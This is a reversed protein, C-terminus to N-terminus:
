NVPIIAGADYGEADAQNIIMLVETKRKGEEIYHMELTYVLRGSGDGHSANKVWLSLPFNIVKGAPLIYGKPFTMTDTKNYSLEMGGKKVKPVLKGARFDATGGSQLINKSEIQVLILEKKSRNKVSLTVTPIPSITANIKEANSDFYGKNRKKSWYFRYYTKGIFVKKYYSIDLIEIDTTEPYEDTAKDSSNALLHNYTKGWEKTTKIENRYKKDTAKKKELKWEGYPNDKPHTGLLPNVGFTQSVVMSPLCFTAIILLIKIKM